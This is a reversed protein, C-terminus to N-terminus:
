RERAEHRDVQAVCAALHKAVEDDTMGCGTITMINHYSHVPHNQVNGLTRLLFKRRETQTTM